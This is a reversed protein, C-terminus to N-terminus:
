LAEAAAGAAVIDPRLATLDDADLKDIPKGMFMGTM